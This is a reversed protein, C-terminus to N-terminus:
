KKKIKPITYGALGAIAATGISLLVGNIGQLMAVTILGAIALIAVVEVIIEKPM